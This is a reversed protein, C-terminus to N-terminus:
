NEVYDLNPINWDNFIDATENNKCQIRCFLSNMFRHVTHLFHTIMYFGESRANGNPPISKM